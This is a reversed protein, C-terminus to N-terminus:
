SIYYDNWQKMILAINKSKSLKREILIQRLYELSGCILYIIFVSSIFILDYLDSYGWSDIRLIYLWLYDRFFPVQHIVYVGFSVSSLLNIWKMCGIDTNMIFYFISSSILFNPLCKYDSLYRSCIDSLLPHLSNEYNAVFVFITYLILGLSLVFWKNHHFIVKKRKYFWMTVYVFMFYIIACFWTDMFLPVYTSQGIVLVFLLIIFYTIKGGGPRGYVKVINQCFLDLYPALLLLVIYASAFWLNWFLIPFIATICGFISIPFGEIIVLSTLIVSWFWVTNWIKFIREAKFKKDVMFWVGIMLFLNVAVRAGSSFLLVPFNGAKHYGQSQGYFHGSIILLMSIIRLLEFNSQRVIM